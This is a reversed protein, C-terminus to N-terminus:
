APRWSPAHMLQRPTHGRDADQLDRAPTPANLGLAYWRRRLIQRGAELLQPALARHLQALLRDQKL